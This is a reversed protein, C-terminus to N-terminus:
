LGDKLGSVKRDKFRVYGRHTIRFHPIAATGLVDVTLLPKDWPVGRENLHTNIKKLNYAITEMPDLSIVGCVPARFESVVNEGVAFVAGGSIEELRKLVTKISTKDCGVVVADTTDWCMTSGIAGEKLNFGKIFGLFMGGRGTREASVVMNCEDKELDLICEETVLKTRQHIARVRGKSPPDPVEIGKLKVTKLMRDPFIYPKPEELIKGDMYITKGRCIVLHPKYDELEPILVLDALRPPSIAGVMHDISFHEAPNITVMQYAKVPNQILKLLSKLPYDLYGKEIFDEPDVGDTSLILRRTDIDRKFIGKIGELERRVSGERIIVHYGLRLRELVEEDTIPEHCSSIGFCTYAQLKNKRCGASHGEVRKRLKLTAEVLAEVRESQANELFLNGWYIEGLGLCLPDELLPIIREPSPAYFEEEETLGCLPSITHFINIPQNRLAEVIARYGDIGVISALEITETVLTTTGSPIVWKIFEHPPTRFIMHTHVDVLGPIAIMGEADLKEAGDSPYDFPEGVYAFRGNKVLILQNELIEGTFVNLVRAHVIALDPPIRGLAVKSLTRSTKATLTTPAVPNSGAVEAGRVCREVM